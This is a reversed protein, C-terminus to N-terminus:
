ERSRIINLRIRIDQITERSLEMYIRFSDNAELKESILMKFAKHQEDKIEQIKQRALQASNVLPIQSKIALLNAYFIDVKDKKHRKKWKSLSVVGSTIAILIAFIVGGIEAYRELFNPENRDLFARAGEHLPHSLKSRDFQEIIGFYFSSNIHVFKDRHAFISRTLDLVATKGMGERVVYMMDTAITAVPEDTLSGYTKRPIIFPKMRPFKLVLGDVESGKHNVEETSAMSYLKYGDFTLLKESTMIVSFVAIVDSETSTSQVHLRSMDLGYYEFFSMMFEYLATGEVGIYVSRDLFMDEISTIDLHEKHFLHLVNTFIPVVTNIGEGVNVLNEVIGMDLSGTEMSDIVAQASLAEILRIHVKYSEELVIKLREAFEKNPEEAVYILSYEETVINCSNVLVLVTFLFLSIRM